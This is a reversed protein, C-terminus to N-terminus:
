ILSIKYNKVFSFLNKKKKNIADFVFLSQYLLDIRYYM